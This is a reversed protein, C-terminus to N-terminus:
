CGGRRPLFSLRCSEKQVPLKLAVSTTSFDLCAKYALLDIAPRRLVSRGLAHVSELLVLYESSEYSRNGIVFRLDVLYFFDCILELFDSCVDNVYYLILLFRESICRVCIERSRGRM